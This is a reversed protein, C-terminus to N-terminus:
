ILEAGRVDGKNIWTILDAGESIAYGPRGYLRAIPYLTRGGGSDVNSQTGGLASGNLGAGYGGNIRVTNLYETFTGDPVYRVRQDVEASAGGATLSSASAQRRVTMDVPGLGGGGYSWGSIAIAAANHRGAGAGSTLLEHFPYSTFRDTQRWCAVGAHGSAGGAAIVGLNNWKVPYRIKLAHGGDSAVSFGRVMTGSNRGGHRTAYGGEGAVYASAEQIITIDVGPPWDGTDFAHSCPVEWMTSSMLYSNGAVTIASNINRFLRASIDRNMVPNFTAAATVSGGGRLSFLSGAYGELDSAGRGGIVVNSRIYVTIVEGGVPPAYQSDHLERLNVNLQDTNIYITRVNPDAPREFAFEQGVYSFTSGSRAEQASIVQVNIPLLAGTDDVSLRHEIRAFDGLWLASDKRGLSFTVQKPPVRYRDVMKTGLDVAAAGNTEDIWRCFIQKIKEGRGKQTSGEDTAIIERVAFNNPDTLSGAPNILGFYVWVQTVQQDPLDKISVSDADFNAFSNLDYITENEAPRIARVKLKANRDDWVPYFYMEQAMSGIVEELGTPETIIGSYRRPMYDTQEQLWQATDLYPATNPAYSFVTQLISMPEESDIVLCVQVVSGAESAEPKSRWGRVVTLVDGVRTFPCLESGKRVVGAAPYESGIGVPDLTWVTDDEDVPNLLRGPSAEPVKVKEDLVTSLLDRAQLTVRGSADPGEISTVFYTRTVVDVVQDGEIFGVKHRIQRGVYYQNRARWKTWFTGRETAIYNADRSKRAALYPDVYKDTHPHDQFECSLGGRAGLAGSNRSAGAPNLSGASLQARLLSPIYYADGPIFSQSKCFRLTLSSLNYNEPDQCTKRTNFCEKGGLALSAACPATSYTEACFDQEFEVWEFTERTFAETM